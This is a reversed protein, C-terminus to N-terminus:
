QKLYIELQLTEFYFLYVNNNDRKKQKNKVSLWRDLHGPPKTSTHFIEFRDILIECWICIHICRNKEVWQYQYRYENLQSFHRWFWVFQFKKDTYMYHWITLYLLFIFFLVLHTLRERTINGKILYWSYDYALSWTCQM